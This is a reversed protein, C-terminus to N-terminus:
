RSSDGGESVTITGKMGMAEHPTCLYPNAGALFREDITLEYTDGVSLLMPGMLGALGGERFEVNHPQGLTGAHIWKVVDGRKVTIEAPEFAFSTMSIDVMKVEHVTQAALDQPPTFLAALAVLSIALRFMM